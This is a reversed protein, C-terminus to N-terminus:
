YPHGPAQLREGTKEGSKEMLEPSYGHTVKGPLTHTRLNLSLDKSMCLLFIAEQVM